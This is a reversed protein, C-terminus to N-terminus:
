REVGINSYNKPKKNDQKIIFNIKDSLLQKEHKSKNGQSRTATATGAIIAYHHLM